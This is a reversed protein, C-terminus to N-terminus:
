STDFRLKSALRVGYLLTAGMSILNLHITMAHYKSFARNRARMEDSVEPDNFKRGDRTEIYSSIDAVM